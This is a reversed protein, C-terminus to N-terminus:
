KEKLPQSNKIFKILTDQPLSYGPGAASDGPNKNGPYKFENITSQPTEEILENKAKKGKHEKPHISEPNGPVKENMNLPQHQNNGQWPEPYVSYCILTDCTRCTTDTFSWRICFNITDKCCQNEFGKPFVVRIYVEENSLYRRSMYQGNIMKHWVFEHLSCNIPSGAYTNLFPSVWSGNPPNWDIQSTEYPGPNNTPLMSGFFVNSSICRECGPQENLYFNILDARIATIKHTQGTGLTSHIYWNQGMKVVSSAVHIAFSRCCTDCTSISNGGTSDPVYTVCAIDSATAINDVTTPVSNILFSGTSKVAFDNCAKLQPTTSSPIHVKFDCTLKAWPPLLNNSGFEFKVNKGTGSQWSFTNCPPSTLTTYKLEPTCINDANIVSVVPLTFTL